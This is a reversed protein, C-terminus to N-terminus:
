PTAAAPKNVFSKEGGPGRPALPGDDDKAYARVYDVLMEQPFQTTADPNGGFHGGVAMNIVVEFPKDFPAPWPRDTGDAARSFWTDRTFYDHGDVSWTLRGPSWDLAYVHWDAITGHDPLVYQQGAYVNRPSTGGYHITGQVVNPESGRNEMVDIEGSAAWGGYADDQPPM